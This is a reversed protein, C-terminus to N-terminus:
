ISQNGLKYKFIGTTKALLPIFRVWRIQRLRPEPCLFPYWTELLRIGECWNELDEARKLSWHAEAGIHTRTVRRNNGWVYFPSFADFALESEPFEERLALVLGKVQQEDFFMFLGEAIFLFPRPLHVGVVDMWGHDLASYALLHYRETDDGILRRRLDIVEPLDLDYWEVHRNDLREFRADLGCGLHVVVANPYRALYDSTIFDFQRNRLLISVKVEESVQAQTFSNPDLKLKQILEVAVDDRILADSRTTELARIYLPLLLSVSVGSLNDGDSNVLHIV